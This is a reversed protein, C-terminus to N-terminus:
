FDLRFGIRIARPPQVATTARFSRTVVPDEEVEINNNLLNFAEGVVAFGGRGLDFRKEVRADLTFSFTFRSHGRTYAQIATPGQNLDPVIVMRAFHQGDQYRAIIGVHLNGPAVVGGSWKIIYGREFFLRARAYSSANPDEFLEGLVGTDNENAHFGTNAAYGDSRQASAAFLMFWRGDFLREFALDIGAQYGNDDPPNTLFLRDKGFSAPNRDYVKLPRDDEPNFFDNGRDPILRLTYDAVTVGVNVPAVFDRQHRQIATLRWRWQKSLRAELGVAWERTTPAKLAPDITGIGPGSKAILTQMESAQLLHDNNADVWRRVLATPASTDGYALYDLPLRHQYYGLGTHFTLSPTLNVRLMGRPLVNRWSVPVPNDRASAKASQFRVGAELSVRSGFGIRDNVWAALETGRRVTSAGGWSVDWARSPIGDTLEGILARPLSDGSSATRAASAGIDLTQTGGMVHQMDPRVRLVADFRQDSVPGPLVTEMVPGDSLREVVGVVPTTAADPVGTRSRAYGAAFSWATGQGVLREWIAHGHYYRDRSAVGRDPFRARGAYPRSSADMGAVLRFQGGDGSSTLSHLFLSTLRSDLRAPDAREFRSSTARRGLLFVGTGSSVPGSLLLGADRAKDYKAIPPAGAKGGAAQWANPLFAAQLQGKWEGLPARPVVAVTPGGGALDVPPLSTIVRVSKLSQDDLYALPIGTRGPNTVDIGDITFGTQTWSSGLNGMLKPEGLYLGGNEIRDVVTIEDATEVLTWLNGSGPLDRLQIESFVAGTAARSPLLSAPQSASGAPSGTTQALAALPMALLFLTTPFFPRPTRRQRIL